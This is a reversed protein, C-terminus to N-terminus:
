VLVNEQFLLLIRFHKKLYITSKLLDFVNERLLFSWKIVYGGFRKFQYGNSSVMQEWYVRERGRLVDSFWLTNKPTSFSHM